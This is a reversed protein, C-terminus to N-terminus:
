VRRVLQSSGQKEDPRPPPDFERLFQSFTYDRRTFGHPQLAQDLRLLPVIYERVAHILGPQSYEYSTFHHKDPGVHRAISCHGPITRARHVADERPVLIAVYPRIGSPGPRVRLYRHIQRGLQALAAPSRAMYHLSLFLHLADASGLEPGDRAGSWAHAAADCQLLSVEPVRYSANPSLFRAYYRRDTPDFETKAEAHSTKAEAHSTKAEAHSTKAEAHSTKAEAHSTTAEAHSTAAEAQSTRAEARSTKAAEHRFVAQARAHRDLATELSRRSCDYGYVHAVRCQIYLTLNQLHNVGLDIVRAGPGTLHRLCLALKMLNLMKRVALLGPQTSAHASSRDTEAEDERASYALAAARTVPDCADLFADNAPSTATHSTSTSSTSISPAPAHNTELTPTAIPTTTPTSTPADAHVYPPLTEDLVPAPEDAVKEAVEAEAEAKAKTRAEAEATAEIEVEARPEPEPDAITETEERTADHHEKASQSSEIQAPPRALGADTKQRKAVPTAAPPKSRSKAIPGTTAAPAPGAARAKRKANTETVTKLKTKTEPTVNEAGSKPKTKIKTKTAPAPAPAPAVNEDGSKPKTKTISADKTASADKSESVPAVKSKAGTKPQTKNSPAEAGKAPLSASGNAKNM